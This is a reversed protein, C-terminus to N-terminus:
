TGLVVAKVLGAWERVYYMPVLGWPTNSSIASPSLGNRKAFLSARFQHFGDTCIVVNTDLNNQVIVKACLKLNQSTNGSANEEYIRKAEVGQQILYQKMVASETYTQGEGLGGSVVAVAHPNSHLYDAAATLRRSLMLSPQDGKIKAGLILVTEPPNAVAPPSFYAAHLMLTLLCVAVTGGLTWLINILKRWKAKISNYFYVYSGFAITFLLMAAVSLNWIGYILSPILAFFLVVACFGYCFVRVIKKM